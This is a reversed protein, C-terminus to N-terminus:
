ATVTILVASVNDPAGAALAAALLGRVAAAPDQHRRLVEELVGIDVHDTLGDSSLLYRDGVRVAATYLNPVVALVVDAGGLTQTVVSTVGSPAGPAAPPSDDVSVQVLSGDDTVRHCRSDGVNVCTVRDGIFVLGVMTTGMGSWDPSRLAELWVAENVTVTAAAVEEPRTCSAWAESLLLAALRSARGGEAHGGMGDAVLCSVPSGAPRVAVRVATGATASCLYGAVAVTDENHDRVAGRHTVAAVDLATV